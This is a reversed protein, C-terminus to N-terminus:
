KLSSLKAKLKPDSPRKACSDIITGDKDVIMLRPVSKIGTQKIFDSKFGGPINLYLVNSPARSTMMKKWTAMLQNGTDLSISLFQIGTAALEDALRDYYPM